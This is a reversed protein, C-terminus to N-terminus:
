PTAPKHLNVLAYLADVRDCMLLNLTVWLVSNRDVEESTILKTHTLVINPVQVTMLTFPVSTSDLIHVNVISDVCKIKLSHGM